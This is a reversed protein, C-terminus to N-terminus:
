YLTWYTDFDKTIKISEAGSLYNINTKPSAEIVHRFYNQLNEKTSNFNSLNGFINVKCYDRAFNIQHFVIFIYKLLEEESTLEFRNFLKLDNEAFAALYMYGPKIDIFIEQDIFEQKIGLLYSLFIISGHSIHIEPIARSFTLYLAKDIAGIVHINNSDLSDSFTITESERLLNTAFNLYQNKSNPDFLLGPVLSFHENHVFIKAKSAGTNFLPSQEVIRGLGEAGSFQHLQSGIIADNLDKAMITLTDNSLLLSLNSVQSTDFKDGLFQETM